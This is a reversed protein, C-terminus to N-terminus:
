HIGFTRHYATVSFYLTTGSMLVIGIAALYLITRKATTFNRFEKEFVIGSGRDALFHSNVLFLSLIAIGAVLRNWEFRYGTILQALTAFSIALVCEVISVGAVASYAKMNSTWRSMRYFLVFISLHVEKLLRMVSHGVGTKSPAYNM